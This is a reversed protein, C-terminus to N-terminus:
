KKIRVLELADKKRLVKEFYTALQTENTDYVFVSDGANNVQVFQMKFYKPLTKVKDDDIVAYCKLGKKSPEIFMYTWYSKYEDHHNALAYYRKKIMVLKHDADLTTVTSEGSDRLTYSTAKFEMYLTDTDAKKFWGTPVKLYYNGQLTDPFVTQEAGALQNFMAMKCSALTTILIAIVISKKM